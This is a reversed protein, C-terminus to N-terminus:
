DEEYLCADEGISFGWEEVIKFDMLIADGLLTAVSSLIDLSSTALLVRAFDLREKNLTIIIYILYTFYILNFVSYDSNKRNLKM